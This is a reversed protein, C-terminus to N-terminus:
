AGKQVVFLIIAGVIPGEFTGLGGVLVMFIMLASYDVSFISTPEIFAPHEQMKFVSRSRSLM